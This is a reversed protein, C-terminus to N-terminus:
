SGIGLSIHRGEEDLSISEIMLDEIDHLARGYRGTVKKNALRPMDEVVATDYMSRVAARVAGIIERLTIGNAGDISGEFWDDFPYDITFTVSPAHTVVDDMADIEVERHRDGVRVLHRYDSAAVPLGGRYLVREVM